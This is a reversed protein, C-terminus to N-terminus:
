ETTSMSNLRVPSLGLRTKTTFECFSTAEKYLCVTMPPCQRFRVNLTLIKCQMKDFRGTVRIQHADEYKMEGGYQGKEETSEYRAFPDSGLIQGPSRAGTPYPAPIPVLGSSSGPVCISDLVVTRVEPFDVVVLKGETTPAFCGLPISVPYGNTSPVLSFKQQIRASSHKDPYYYAIFSRQNGSEIRAHFRLYMQGPEIQDFFVNTIKVEIDSIM